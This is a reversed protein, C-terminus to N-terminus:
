HRVKAEELFTFARLKSPQKTEVKCHFKPYKKQRFATTSLIYM